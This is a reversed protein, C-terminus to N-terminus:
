NTWEAFGGDVNPEVTAVDDGSIEIDYEYAVAVVADRLQERTADDQQPFGSIGSEETGDSFTVRYAWGENISDQSDWYILVRTVTRNTKM